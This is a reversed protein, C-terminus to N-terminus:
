STGDAAVEEQHDILWHTEGTMRVAYKLVRDCNPCSGPPINLAHFNFSDSDTGTAEYISCLSGCSPCALKEKNKSDLFQIQKEIETIAPQKVPM